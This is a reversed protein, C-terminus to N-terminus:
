VLFFVNLKGSFSTKKLQRQHNGLIRGMISDRLLKAHDPHAFRGNCRPMFALGALGINRFCIWSKNTYPQLDRM